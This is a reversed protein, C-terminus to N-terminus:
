AGMDIEKTFDLCNLLEFELIGYDGVNYSINAWLWGCFTLFSGLMERGKTLGSLLVM